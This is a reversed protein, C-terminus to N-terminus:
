RRWLDSPRIGTLWLFLLMLIIVVLVWVLGGRFLPEERPAQREDDGPRGRSIILRPPLTETTVTEIEMQAKDEGPKPEPMRELLERVEPPLDDRSKYERGNYVISEEVVIKAPGAGGPIGTLAKGEAGELAKIAQLYQERVDPPMQEIGDYERGNVVIKSFKKV